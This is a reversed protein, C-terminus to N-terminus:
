QKKLELLVEDTTNITSQKKLQNRIHEPIDYERVDQHEITETWKHDKYSYTKIINFFGEKVSTIFTEVGTLFKKIALPLNNILNKIWNVINKWYIAIAGGLLAAGLLIAIDIM